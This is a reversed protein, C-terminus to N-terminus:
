IGSRMRYYNALINRVITLKDDSRWMLKEGLLELLMFYYSWM